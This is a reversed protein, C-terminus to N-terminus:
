GNSRREQFDERIKKALEANDKLLDYVTCALIKSATIYVFEKDTISFDKGHLHGAFGGMTPQISPILQSLDGMDTSGTMDVHYRIQEPALFARVNEAFAETVGEDQMLPAYGRINEIECGAGVALAGGRLSNDVKECADKLAEPTAARVYTEIVAKDPIVNVLDGGNTIIPHIRVRDSDRFTERNSHIGMLGLMAANLANTGNWPESGHCSVGSFTIKKMEFGLSSGSLFIQPTPTLAHSHIMMAVDVDDFAGLEILEHKGAMYTIRGSDVLHQRYDLEAFEEAPVAFFVVRGGIEDLVGSKALGYATGIMNAIQVNHGCTHAAGTEPDAFPHDYCKVADMEGIVCVTIDANPDGLVGKVGTVALEATFPIGLKEFEEQVRASTKFEKYGLEPNKLIYEGCALIEERSEDIARIIKNKM